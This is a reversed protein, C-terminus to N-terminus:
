LLEETCSMTVTAGESIMYVAGTSRIEIATGAPIRQGVAATVASSGWRVHVTAHTNTCSLAIRIDSAARVLTASSTVAVDTFPVVTKGHNIQAAFSPTVLAVSLVFFAWFNKTIPM